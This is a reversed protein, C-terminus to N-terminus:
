TQKKITYTTFCFVAYSSRMLSQLESTHEESRQGGTILLLAVRCPWSSSSLCYWACVLGWRCLSVVDLVKGSWQEHCSGAGVHLCWLDSACRSPFLTDTWTAGPQGCIM